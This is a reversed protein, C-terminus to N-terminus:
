QQQLQQQQQEWEAIQEPTWEVEQQQNDWGQQQQQGDWAQQDWGQQDWGGQQQQDWGSGEQQQQDWGGAEQQQQDWGEQQQQAWEGGQQVWEGQQQVWEGQQQQEDWQPQQDQLPEDWAQEPAAAAAAVEEEEPPSTSSVQVWAEEKAGAPKDEEGGQDEEEEEVEPIFQDPKSVAEVVADAVVVPAPEEAVPEHVRDVVQLWKKEEVSEKWLSVQDEGASVALVSGSVSWAVRWVPVEGQILNQVSWQGHEKDQNWLKVQGDEGCSALLNYPLGVSPCFAVDRVWGKHGVLTFEPKDTHWVPASVDDQAWDCKFIKVSEDSGGVALRLVSTGDVLSVSGLSGFPAWSVSNVGLKDGLFSTEVHWEGSTQDARLVAVQGDSSGLALALGYEIPSFEISNVSANASYRFWESWIGTNEDQKHLLVNGDYSCSGLLTGWRPHAWAVEWVPGQHGGLNCSFQVQPSSGQNSIVDFIKILGDGSCTALRLGYYDLQADHVEAEHGTQTIISTSM